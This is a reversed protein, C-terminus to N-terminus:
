ADTKGTTIAARVMARCLDDVDIHYIADPYAIVTNATLRPRIAEDFRERAGFMLERRHARARKMNAAWRWDNLWQAFAKV